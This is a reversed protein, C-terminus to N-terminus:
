TSKESKNVKILRKGCTPCFKIKYKEFLENDLTEKCKPCQYKDAKILVREPIRYESLRENEEQLYETAAVIMDEPEPMEKNDKVYIIVKEVLIEVKYILKDLYNWNSTYNM